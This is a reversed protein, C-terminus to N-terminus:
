LHPLIFDCFSMISIHVFSLIFFSLSIIKINNNIIVMLMNWNCLYFYVSRKIKCDGVLLEILVTMLNIICNFKPYVMLIVVPFGHLTKQIMICLM